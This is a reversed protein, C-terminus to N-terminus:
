THETFTLHKLKVPPYMALLLHHSILYLSLCHGSLLLGSISRSNGLNRYKGIENMGAKEAVRINILGLDMVSNLIGDRLVPGKHAFALLVGKDPYRVPM